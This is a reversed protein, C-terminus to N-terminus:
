EIGGLRTILTAADDLDNVIAFSLPTTGNATRANVDAGKLLLFEITRCCGSRAAYHIATFGRRDQANLDLWPTYLLQVMEFNGARAAMMLPTTGDFAFFGADAGSELLLKVMMIDNNEVALHLPCIGGRSKFNIRRPDLKLLLRVEECDGREISKFIDSSGRTLTPLLLVLGACLALVLLWWAM